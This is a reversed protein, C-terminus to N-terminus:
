IKSHDQSGKIDFYRYILVLESVLVSFFIFSNCQIEPFKTGLILFSIFILRRIMFITYYQTYIWGKEYKWDRFLIGFRKLYFENENAIKHRKDYLIPVVVLPFWIWFIFVPVSISLSIIEEIRSAQHDVINLLCAFSIELYGEWFFRIFNNFFYSSIVDSLFNKWKVSCIMTRSIILLFLLGITGFLSLLLSSCNDIFLSSEIGHEFYKSNYSKLKIQDLYTFSKFIDSMFPFKLNSFSLVEFMIQVHKPFYPTMLPLFSIIQMTNLLCWLMEMSGGGILVLMLILSLGSYTLYKIYDKASNITKTSFELSNQLTYSLENSTLWGGYPGRFMKENTFEITIIEGGELLSEIFLDIKLTNSNIYAAKPEFDIRYESEITISIDKETINAAKMTHNFSIIAHSNSVQELKPAIKLPLWIDPSSTTGGKCEHCREIEWTESCGDTNNTNGDDCEYYGYNKGDGWEEKWVSKGTLADEIWDFGSEKKCSSSCRDGDKTNGDDWKDDIIMGDGWKDVCVHPTLPGSNTWSYGEEVECISSCGDGTVTNGDDCVGDRAVISKGDGCIEFWVDAATANGGEWMWGDEVLCVSSINLKINLIVQIKNIIKLKKIKYKKWIYALSPFYNTFLPNRDLSTTPSSPTDASSVKYDDEGIV